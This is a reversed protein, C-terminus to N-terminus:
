IATTTVGRRVKGLGQLCVVLPLLVLLGYVTLIAGVGNQKVNGMELGAFSALQEAAEAGVVKYLLYVPLFMTEYIDPLWAAKLFPLSDLVWESHVSAVTGDVVINGGRVYPNYLGREISKGVHVVVVFEVTEGAVMMVDGVVVDKAYVNRMISKGAQLAEQNCHSTCVRAFHTETLRLNKGDATKLNVFEKVTMEDRHGFLYVEGYQIAGYKNVTQVNDGYALDKMSTLGKGNVEVMANAPFCDCSDGCNCRGGQCYTNTIFPDSEINRYLRRYVILRRDNLLWLFTQSIETVLNGGSAWVPNNSNSYCVFNADWQMTCRTAGGVGNTWWQNGEVSTGYLQGNSLCIKYDGNASKLCDSEYLSQGSPLNDSWDKGTSAKDQVMPLNSQAPPYVDCTQKNAECVLELSSVGKQIQFTVEQNPDEGCQGDVSSAEVSFLKSGYKVNVISNPAINCLAVVDTRNAYGKIYENNPDPTIEIDYDENGYALHLIDFNSRQQGKSDVLAVRLIIVMITVGAIVAWRRWSIRATEDMVRAQSEQDHEQSGLTDATSGYVPNSGEYAM